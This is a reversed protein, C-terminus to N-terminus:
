NFAGVLFCGDPCLLELSLHHMHTLSEKDDNSAAWHGPPDYLNALFAQFLICLSSRLSHIWLM